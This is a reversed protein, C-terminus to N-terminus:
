SPLLPYGALFGVADVFLILGLVIMLVIIVRRGWTRLFHGIAGFIRTSQVPRFLRVFVLFLLPLLFLVNYYLLLTLKSMEALDAKMIQSLAAFYPLMSALGGATFIFGLAFIMPTGVTKSTKGNDVKKVTAGIQRAFVILGLGVIIQLYLTIPHPSSWNQVLYAQAEDILFGFGFLVLLGVMIYAVTIGSIYALARQLPKKGTLFLVLSTFHIPAIADLLAIPLLIFLLPTM